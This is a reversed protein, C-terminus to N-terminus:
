PIPPAPRRPVPAGAHDALGGLALGIVGRPLEVVTGLSHGCLM